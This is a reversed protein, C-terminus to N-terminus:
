RGFYLASSWIFYTHLHQVVGGGWDWKAKSDSLTHLFIHLLRQTLVHVEINKLEGLLEPILHDLKM